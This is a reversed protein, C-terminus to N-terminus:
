GCISHSVKVWKATSFDRQHDRTLGNRNWFNSRQESWVQAVWLLPWMMALGFGLYSPM